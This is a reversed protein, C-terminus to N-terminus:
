KYDPVRAKKQLKELVERVEGESLGDIKFRKDIGCAVGILAGVGFGGLGYPLIADRWQEGATIVRSGGGFWGSTRKDYFPGEIVSGIVVASLTGLLMGLGVQSKRAIDVAKVESMAISRGGGTTPDLVLLGDQKVCILEGKISFGNKFHVYIQIGQKEVALMEEHATIFLITVLILAIAKKM